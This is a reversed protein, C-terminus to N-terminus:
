GMVLGRGPMALDGNFPTWNIENGLEIGALVVGQAEVTDLLAKFYTESLRPDAASLPPMQKPNTPWDPPFQLDVIADIKIGKAYARRAFDIYRDVPRLNTRIIHVGANSMQALMQNQVDVSAGMPNLFIVGTQLPECRAFPPALACFLVLAGVSLLHLSSFIKM